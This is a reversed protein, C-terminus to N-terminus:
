VLKSTYRKVHNEAGSRVNYCTWHKFSNSKEWLISAKNEPRVSNEFSLVLTLPFLMLLGMILLLFQKSHILSVYNEYISLKYGSAWFSVIHKKNNAASFRLLNSLGRKSNWVIQFSIENTVPSIPLWLIVCLSRLWALRYCMRVVPIRYWFNRGQVVLALCTVRRMRM